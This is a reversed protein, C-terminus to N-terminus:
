HTGPMITRDGADVVTIDPPLAVQSASGVAAIRKNDIVVVADQLAPRRSGHFLRQSKIAWKVTTERSQVFLKTMFRVCLDRPSKPRMKVTKSALYTSINDTEVGVSVPHSQALRRRGQFYVFFPLLSPSVSLFVHYMRMYEM